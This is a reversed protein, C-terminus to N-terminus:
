ALKGGHRHPRTTNYLMKNQMATDIDINYAACADLVRIIVDALEIPIGEPKAEGGSDIGIPCMEEAACVTGDPHVYRIADFAHGNRYEELAESVESVVLMLVGGFNRPAVVTATVKEGRYMAEADLYEENWWGKSKATEHIRQALENFNTRELEGFM